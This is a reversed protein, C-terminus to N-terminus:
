VTLKSIVKCWEQTAEDFKNKSQYVKQTHEYIEYFIVNPLTQEVFYLGKEEIKDIIRM